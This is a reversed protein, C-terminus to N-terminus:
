PTTTWRGEDSSNSLRPFCWWLLFVVIFLELVLTLDLVYRM